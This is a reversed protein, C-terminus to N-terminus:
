WLLRATIELLINKWVSFPTQTWASALRSGIAEGEALGLSISVRVRHGGRQWEVRFKLNPISIYPSFVDTARTPSQSM